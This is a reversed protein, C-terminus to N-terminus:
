FTLGYLFRFSEESMPAGTMNGSPASHVSDVVATLNRTLSKSLSATVTNSTTGYALQSTIGLIPVDRSVSVRYREGNLSPDLTPPTMPDYTQPNMLNVSVGANVISSTVGMAATRQRISTSAQLLTDDSVRVRFPRGSYLAAAGYGVAAASKLGPNQDMAKEADDKHLQTEHAAVKNIMDQRVGMMRNQQDEYSAEDMLGYKSKLEYDRNMDDFEQRVEAATRDDMLDSLPGHDEYGTPGVDNLWSSNPEKSIIYTSDSWAPRVNASAAASALTEARLQTALFPQLLLNALVAGSIVWFPSSVKRSQFASKM